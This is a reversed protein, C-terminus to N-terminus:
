LIWVRILPSIFFFVRGCCFSLDPLSYVIVSSCLGDQLKLAHLNTELMQLKSMIEQSGFHKPLEVEEARGAVCKHM